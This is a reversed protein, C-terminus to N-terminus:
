KKNKHKKQREGIRDNTRNLSPIKCTVQHMFNHSHMFTGKQTYVHPASEYSASYKLAETQHANIYYTFSMLRDKQHINLPHM